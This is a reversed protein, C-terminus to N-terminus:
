VTGCPKNVEQKTYTYRGGGTISMEYAALMTRALERLFLGGRGRGLVRGQKTGRYGPLRPCSGARTLGESQDPLLASPALLRPSADSGPPGEPLSSSASISDGPLLPHRSSPPTSPNRPSHSALVSPSSTARCFAWLSGPRPSPRVQEACCSPQWGQSSSKHACCSGAAQRACSPTPPPPQVKLQRQSTPGPSSLDGRWLGAQPWGSPRLCWCAAVCGM